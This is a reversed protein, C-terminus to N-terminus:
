PPIVEYGQAALVALVGGPKLLFPLPAIALTTTQTRIADQAAELWVEDYRRRLAMLTPASNLKSWCADEHQWEARQRLLEVDGTSWATALQRADALDSELRDLTASFCVLEAERPIRALEDLLPRPDGIDLTPEAIRVRNHKAIKRVRDDIDIRLSLGANQLAENWLAGAALLPRLELMGRERPAHALRLTEFRQFLEPPLVEDLTRDDPNRRLKRWQLYLKIAKIPGLDADVDPTEPILLQARTLVEEVERSRWEMKRPLPRLTGLVYLTRDGNVVRWLGPGPREGSVRVEDVDSGTAGDPLQEAPSSLQALATQPTAITAVFAM